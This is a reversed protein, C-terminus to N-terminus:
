AYVEPDCHEFLGSSLVLSEIGQQAKPAREPQASGTRPREPCTANKDRALQFSLDLIQVRGPRASGSENVRLANSELLEGFRIAEWDPRAQGCERLYYEVGSSYRRARVRCM